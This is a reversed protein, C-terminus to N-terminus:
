FKYSVGLQVTQLTLDQRVNESYGPFTSGARYGTDFTMDGLDTRLYEVRLSWKEDLPVAAGAGYTLGGLWDAGSGFKSYGGSSLVEANAKADAFTYGIVLYGLVPDFNWGINARATFTNEVEIENGVAYTLSPPAGPVSTQGTLRRDTVDHYAYNVEAGLVLGSTYQKNYGAFLGVGWGDPQLNTSWFDTVGNRLAASEITVWNSGLSLDSDGDGFSYTALGGAYFGSWDQAAASGALLMAAAFGLQTRM